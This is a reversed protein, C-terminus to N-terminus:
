IMLDYNPFCCHKYKKGSGCPCPQKQIYKISRDPVSPANEAIAKMQIGAGITVKPSTSSFKLLACDELSGSFECGATQLKTEEPRIVELQHADAKLRVGNYDMDLLQVVVDNPPKVALKLVITNKDKIIAIKKGATRVKFIGSFAKWVNNEIALAETNANDHFLASLTYPGGKANSNRIALVCTNDISIVRDIGIIKNGGIWINFGDPNLDFSEHCYGNVKCWPSSKLRLITSKSIIGEHAKTHCTPCLYIMGNPNHEIADVFEPDFHHIEGIALGCSSCGWYAERM